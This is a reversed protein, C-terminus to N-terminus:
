ASINIMKSKCEISRKSKKPTNSILTIDKGVRDEQPAEDGEVMAPENQHLIQGIQNCLNRDQDKTLFVTGKVKVTQSIILFIVM